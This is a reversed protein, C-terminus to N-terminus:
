RNQVEFLVRAKVGEAFIAIGANCVILSLTGWSFWILTSNGQLKLGISHGLLSLGLGILTLGLPSFLRWKQFHTM